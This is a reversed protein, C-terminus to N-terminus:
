YEGKSVQFVKLGNARWMDVVPQRDELVARVSYKGKVNELWLERKVVIDKRFDDKKRMLLLDYEVGYTRLSLETGERSEESRGTCIIITYGAAKYCLYTEYVVQDLDDRDVKHWDFYGRKGNAHFLTGDLDIMVAKPLAPDFEPEKYVYTKKSQNQLAFSDMLITYDEFMKKIVEEGVPRERLSDREVAKEFSIDFVMFEVDARYEVYKIMDEIYRSKVHTADLLINLRRDLAVDITNLVLQTIMDEIKPECFGQDKLMYRFDDRNIRVYDPNKRVFEKSWTSKGAAPIGILIKVIQNKKQAM